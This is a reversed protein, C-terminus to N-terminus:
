LIASDSPTRYHLVPPIDRESNFAPSCCGRAVREAWVRSAIATPTALHCYWRFRSGNGVPRRFRLRDLRATSPTGREQRAGERVHNLDISTM